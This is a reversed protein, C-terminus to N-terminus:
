VDADEDRMGNMKANLMERLSLGDQKVRPPRPSVAPRTATGGVSPSIQGQSQSAQNAYAAAQQQQAIYQQRLVVNEVYTRAMANCQEVNRIGANWIENVKQAYLHGAPSLTKMGHQDLVPSGDDHVQFIWAANQGVINQAQVGEAHSAFREEIMKAAKAEAKYEVYADRFKPDNDWKNRWEAYAQAKEGIRPDYGPKSRILGTNPDREVMLAWRDDWEPSAYPNRDAQQSQAQRQIQNQQIWAQIQDSYPAMQRGLDAYYNREQSGRYADLLARTAAVDDQYPLQIGQSRAYDVVGQWEAASAAPAQAQAAAPASVPPAAVVEGDGDTVPADQRSSLERDVASESSVELDLDESSM